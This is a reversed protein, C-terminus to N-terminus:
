TSIIARSSTNTNIDSIYHIYNNGNTSKFFTPSLHDYSLTNTRSSINNNRRISNMYNYKLLNDIPLQVELTVSKKMTNTNYSEKIIDDQMPDNIQGINSIYNLRYNDINHKNIRM